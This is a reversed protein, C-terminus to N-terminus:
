LSIPIGSIVTYWNVVFMQFKYFVFTCWVVMILKLKQFKYFVFTCWVVM